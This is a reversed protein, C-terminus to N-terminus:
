GGAARTQQLSAPRSRSESGPQTTASRASGASTSVPPVLRSSM